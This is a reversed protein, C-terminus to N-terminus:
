LQESIYKRKKIQVRIEYEEEGDRFWCAPHGPFTRARLLNLLKYAHYQRNLDIYSASEIDSSVHFSGSDLDQKNRPINLARM